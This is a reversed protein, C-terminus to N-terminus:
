APSANTLARDIQRQTFVSFPADGDITIGDLADAYTDSFSEPTGYITVWAIADGGDVYIAEHLVIFENGSDSVDRILVAGADDGSEDLLM